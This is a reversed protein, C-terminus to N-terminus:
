VNKRDEKSGIVDLCIEKYETQEECSLWVDKEKVNKVFTLLFQVGGLFLGVPACAIVIWFPIRLAPTIRQMSKVDLVYEIAYFALYFLILATGLSICFMLVKKARCGLQEYLANMRIHRSRRAAYSIGMFTLMVLIFQSVEEASSWSYNFVKRSLVNGVTVVTLLIVGWALIFEEVRKLAENLRHFFM